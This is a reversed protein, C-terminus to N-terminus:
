SAKRNPAAHDPAPEREAARDDLYRQIRKPLHAGIRECEQALYQSFEDQHAEILRKIAAEGAEARLRSAEGRPERNLAREAKRDAAGRQEDATRQLHEEVRLERCEEIRTAILARYGEARRRWDSLPHASSALQQNIDSLLVNLAARWRKLNAPERLALRDTMAATGIVEDNVLAQFAAPDMAAIRAVDEPTTAMDDPILDTPKKTLHWWQCGPLCPYPNLIQGVGVQARTAASEAAQRTAYRSKGPTPCATSM